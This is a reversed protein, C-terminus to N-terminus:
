RTSAIGRHGGNDSKIINITSILVYMMIAAGSIGCEIFEMECNRKEAGGLRIRGNIAIHVCGVILGAILAINWKESLGSIL